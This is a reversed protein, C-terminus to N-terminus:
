EKPAKMHSLFKRRLTDYGIVEFGCEQLAAKLRPDCLLDTEAQRHKPMNAPAGPNLDRLAQMEPGDTGIHCVVLYVGAQKLKRLEEIFFATKQEPAVSYIVPGQLEGFWRPVALGNSRAVREFREKLQPTTVPGSMHHDMYCLKLGKRLALGVQARYEREAEDPSPNHAILEKRTGFFKGWEDVLSPVEKPPLVPGCRYPTWESNIATHLGVSVEPHQKLIEVAEDLWPSNAMVGVSVLPGEKLVRELAADVGHCLGADDVRFIIRKKGDGFLDTAAAAEASRRAPAVTTQSQVAGATLLLLLAPAAALRKFPKVAQM